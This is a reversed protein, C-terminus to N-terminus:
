HTHAAATEDFFGFTQSPVLEHIQGDLKGLAFPASTAGEIRRVSGDMTVGLVLGAAKHVSKYKQDLTLSSPRLVPSSTSACGFDFVRGSEMMLQASKAARDYSNPYIVGVPTEGSFAIERFSYARPDCAFVVKNKYVKANWQAAIHTDVLNNRQEPTQGNYEVAQDGAQQAIEGEGRAFVFRAPKTRDEPYLVMHQSRMVIRGLDPSSGLRQTTGDPKVFHFSKDKAMVLFAQEREVRVPNVFTEDAYVVASSRAYAKLAPHIGQAYRALQAYTEVTVAYSGGDSIRTDCAGQLGERPGSRCTTHPFGDIHRAEHMFVSARDLATYNESLMMTCAYMTSGGWAYVYAAVGKPCNGDIVVENIRGIFYNYWSSAFKGSFLEDRSKGMPDFKTQRMFMLGAILHSEHSGDFCYEKGAKDRFQTFHSAIEQMEEKSVCQAPAAPAATAATASGLLLALTILLSKM